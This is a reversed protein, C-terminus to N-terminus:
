GNRGADTKVHFKDVTRRAGPFCFQIGSRYAASLDSSCLKAKVTISLRRVRSLDDEAVAKGVWYRLVRILAKENCRLVKSAKLIPMDGLLLM